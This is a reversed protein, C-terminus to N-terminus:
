SSQEDLINAIKNCAEALERLDKADWFWSSYFDEGVKLCSLKVRNRQHAEIQSSDIFRMKAGSFTSLTASSFRERMMTDLSM